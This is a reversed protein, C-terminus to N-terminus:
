LVVLTRHSCKTLAKTSLMNTPACKDFSDNNLSNPAFKDYTDKLIDWLPSLDIFPDISTIKIEPNATAMISSSGGLASGIEVVISDKPLKKIFSYLLNAENANLLAFWSEIPMEISPTFRM